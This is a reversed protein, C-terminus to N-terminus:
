RHVTRDRDQRHRFPAPQRRQQVGVEHGARRGDAPRPHVPDLGQKERASVDHQHRRAASRERAVRHRVAHDVSRGAHGPSAASGRPLSRPGQLVVSVPVDVGAIDKRGIAIGIVTAAISKTVSQLTHVDRGQYYPHWNPHLYNFENMAAPDSCGEGCGLPGKQGRSIARYDRAYREDVVLHGGRVVLLHDIHGYAGGEIERDLESLRRADLGQSEPTARTWGATPWPTRPQALLSVSTVAFLIALSWPLRHPLTPM